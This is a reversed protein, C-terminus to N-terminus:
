SGCVVRIALTLLLASGTGSVTRGSTLAVDGLGALVGVGAAVAGAGVVATATGATM